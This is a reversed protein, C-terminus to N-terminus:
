NKESNGNIDYKNYLNISEFFKIMGTKLNVNQWRLAILEIESFIRKLKSFSDFIRAELALNEVNFKRNWEELKAKEPTSGVLYDISVDFFDSIAIM